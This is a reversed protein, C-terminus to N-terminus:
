SCVLLVAGDERVFREECVRLRWVQWDVHQMSPVGRFRASRYVSRRSKLMLTLVPHFAKGFSCDFVRIIHVAFDNSCNISLLSMNLGLPWCCLNACQCVYHRCWSRSLIRSQGSVFARQWSARLSCGHRCRPRLSDGVHEGFNRKPCLIMLNCWKQMSDYCPCM